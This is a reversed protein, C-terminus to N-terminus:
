ETRQRKFAVWDVDLEKPPASADPAELRALLYAVEVDRTLPM